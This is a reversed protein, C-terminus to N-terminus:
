TCVHAMNKSDGHCSLKMVWLGLRANRKSSMKREKKRRKMGGRERERKIPAYQLIFHFRKVM